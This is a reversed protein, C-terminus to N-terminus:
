LTVDPVANVIVQWTLDTEGRHSATGAGHELPVPRLRRKELWRRCVRATEAHGATALLYGLRQTNPVDDIASLTGMMDDDRLAAGMQALTGAVTHLGGAPHLFRVLDLATATATSCRLPAQRSPLMRTPVRDFDPRHVVRVPTTGVRFPAIRRGVIVHWVQLAHHTAGYEMAASRLAVYYPTDLAAMVDHLVWDVPPAGRTRYELPVILWIGRRHGLKALRGDKVARQAAALRASPHLPLGQLDEATVVYRGRAQLAELCEDLAGRHHTMGRPAGKPLARGRGSRGEGPPDASANLHPALETM